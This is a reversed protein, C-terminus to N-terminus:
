ETVAGKESSAPGIRCPPPRPFLLGQASTAPRPAPPPPLREAPRHLHDCSQRCNIPRGQDIILIVQEREPRLDPRPSSACLDLLYQRSFRYDAGRRRDHSGFMQTPGPM